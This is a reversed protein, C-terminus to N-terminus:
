SFKGYPYDKWRRLRTPGMERSALPPKLAQSDMVEVILTRIGSSTCSVYELNVNLIRSLSPPEITHAYHTPSSHDSELCSNTEIQQTEEKPSAQPQSHATKETDITDKVDGPHNHDQSNHERSYACIPPETSEEVDLPSTDIGM